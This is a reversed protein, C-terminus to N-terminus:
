QGDGRRAKAFAHRDGRCLASFQCTSSCNHQGAGAKAPLIPFRGLRVAQVFQAALEVAASVIDEGAVSGRFAIRGSKERKPIHLYYSEAM